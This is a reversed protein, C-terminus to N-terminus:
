RRAPSNMSHAPFLHWSLTPFPTNRVQLCSPHSETPLGSCCAVSQWAEPRRWSRAGRPSARSSQRRRCSWRRSSLVAYGRLCKAWFVSAYRRRRAWCRRSWIRRISKRMLTQATANELNALLDFDGREVSADMDAVPGAYPWEIRQDAAMQAALTLIVRRADGREEEGIDAHAEMEEGVFKRVRESMNSLFRQSVIAGAGLFALTFDKQDAERLLVQIHEDSLGALTNLDGAVVSSLMQWSKCGYECAIVHQAEQLSLKGKLIEDPTAKSLRPLHQQIRTAADPSAAKHANRLDKAQKKLQKLNPRNPLTRNM